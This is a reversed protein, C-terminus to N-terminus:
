GTPEAKSKEGASTRRCRAYNNTKNTLLISNIEEQDYLITGGLKTYPITGNIRLNQLGTASIGLMEMVEKSKLWKKTASCLKLAEDLYALIERKADLVDTRSALEDLQISPM